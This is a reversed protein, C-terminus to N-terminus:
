EHRKTEQDPLAPAMLARYEAALKALWEPLDDHALVAEVIERAKAKRDWELESARQEASWKARRAADRAAVADPDHQKCWQSGDPKEVTWRRDCQSHMAGRGAPFVQEECRKPDRPTGQPRGAWAGYIGDRPRSV